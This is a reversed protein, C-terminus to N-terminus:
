HRTRTATPTALSTTTSRTRPYLTTLPLNRTDLGTLTLTPMPPTTTPTSWRLAQRSSANLSLFPDLHPEAQSCYLNSDRRQLPFLLTVGRRDLKESRGRFTSSRARVARARDQTLGGHAEKKQKVRGGGSKGDGEARKQQDLITLAFTLGRSNTGHWGLRLEPGACM